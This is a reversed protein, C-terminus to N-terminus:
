ATAGSSRCLFEAHTLGPYQDDLILGIQSLQDAQREAALAVFQGFCHVTWTREFSNFSVPGIQDQEIEHQRSTDIADLNASSDPLIWAEFTSADNEQGRGILSHLSFPCAFNTYVFVKRLWETGDLKALEDLGHKDSIADTSRNM